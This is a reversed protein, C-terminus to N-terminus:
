VSVAVLREAAPAADEADSPSEIADLAGNWSYRDRAWARGREGEVRALEPNRILEVAHAALGEPTDAVRIIGDPIPELGLRVISTTVVPTGSALAQIVKNQVGAAFRHPAVFVTAKMLASEVRPVHGVIRVGEGRAWPGLSEAGKGAIELTAGPVEGRVLPFVDQVLHRVADRNHFVEHFGLFLLQSSERPGNQQFSDPGLGNPVVRVHAEPAIDLMSEREAESIVWCEDFRPAVRSEYLRIRDCEKRYLWLDFGKRYPLSREIGVSIVDTFDLVWRAKVRPMRELAYPAMRFLHTYVLDPRVRALIRGVRDQMRRSRYYAAQLPEEGALARAARLRSLLPPLSVVDVSALLRTLPEIEAPDHEHRAFTLLHVEHGAESAMRLMHFVRFRDGGEPPCPMRSTLFVIRM